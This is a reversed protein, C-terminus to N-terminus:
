EYYEGQNGSQRQQFRNYVGKGARYAGYAGVAAGGVKAARQAAPSMQSYKDKAYSMNDKARAKLDDVVPAVKERYKDGAAELIPKPRPPPPEMKPKGITSFPKAANGLSPNANLTAREFAERGGHVSGHRAQNYAGVVNSKVGSVAQRKTSAWRSLNGAASSARNVGSGIMRAGGQAARNVGGSVRGAMAGAGRALGGLFAVKEMDVVADARTHAFKVGFKPNMQADHHDHWKTLYRLYADTDERKIQIADLYESLNAKKKMLKVQKDEVDKSKDEGILSKHLKREMKEHLVNDSPRKKRLSYSLDMHKGQNPHREVDKM